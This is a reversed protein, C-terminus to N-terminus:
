RSRRRVDVMPQGPEFNVGGTGAAEDMEPPPGAGLMRSDVDAVDGGGRRNTDCGQRRLEAEVAHLRMITQAGSGIGEKFSEPRGGLGGSNAMLLDQELQQCEALSRQPPGTLENLEGEIAMTFLGLTIGESRFAPSVFDDPADGREVAATVRTRAGGDLPELFATMRTAVKDGSMVVLSIQNNGRETRFLPAVGGSAAPDTGPSGPQGRVDLDALAAMVQAPSRDVDRSYTSGGLAGSAWLGGLALPAVLIFAKISM